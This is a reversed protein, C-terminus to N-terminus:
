ISAQIVPFLLSSSPLRDLIDHLITQTHVMINVGTTDTYPAALPRVVANRLREIDTNSKRSTPECVAAALRSLDAAFSDHGAATDPEM